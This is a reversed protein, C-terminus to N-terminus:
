IISVIFCKEVELCDNDIFDVPPESINGTYKGTDNPEDSNSVEINSPEESDFVEINSPEKSNSIEINSPEKPESVEINSPKKSNFVQSNSPEKSYLQQSKRMKNEEGAEVLMELLKEEDEEDDVKYMQELKLFLENASTITKLKDKMVKTLDEYIIELALENKIKAERQAASRVRKPPIYGDKVSEWLGRSRLTNQLAM